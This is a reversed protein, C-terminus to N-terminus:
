EKKLYDIYKNMREEVGKLFCLSNYVIGPVNKKDNQIVGCYELADKLLFIILSTTGCIKSYYTPKLNSLRGWCLRKVIDINENTFIFDDILQIFFTGTKNNNNELIYACAKRWFEKDDETSCLEKNDLLQFVVRYVFVIENLPPKLVSNHFLKNYTEDNLLEIAKTAARSIQFPHAEKNFEDNKHKTRLENIKDDLTSTFTIDNREEFQRKREQIVICLENHFYKTTSFLNIKDKANMYSYISEFMASHCNEKIFDGINIKVTPKKSIKKATFDDNIDSLQVTKQKHAENSLDNPIEQVTSDLLKEKNEKIKEIKRVVKKPNQPSPSMKRNTNSNANSNTAGKKPVAIHKRETKEPTKDRINTKRMTRNGLTPTLELNTKDRKKITTMTTGLTPTKSRSRDIAQAYGPTKNRTREVKIDKDEEKNHRISKASIDRKLNDTTRNKILTREPIKIQSLRKLEKEHKIFCVGTFKLDKMQQTTRTELRLISKDLSSTLLQKLIEM